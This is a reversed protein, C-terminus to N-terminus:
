IQEGKVTVLCACGTDFVMEKGPRFLHSSSFSSTHWWATFLFVLVLTRVGMSNKNTSYFYIPHMISLVDDLSNGQADCTPFSGWYLM